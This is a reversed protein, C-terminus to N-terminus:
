ARRNRKSYAKGNAKRALNIAIKRERTIVVVRGKSDYVVFKKKIERIKL